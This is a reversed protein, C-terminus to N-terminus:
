KNVDAQITLQAGYPQISEAWTRPDKTSRIIRYTEPDTLMEGLLKETKNGAALGITNGAASLARGVSTNVVGGPVGMPGLVSQVLNQGALHQATKSGGIAGLENARNYRGMDKAINTMDEIQHPYFVDEMKAGPMNLAKQVTEDGERLANAYAEMRMRTPNPSQDNLAPVAKKYFAEGAEMRNIPASLDSYLQNAARYSPSIDGMVGMAENKLGLLIRAQNTNGERMASGIMDDLGTKANMLQNMGVRGGTMTTEEPISKYNMLAPDYEVRAPTTTVKLPTSVAKGEDKAMRAGRNMAEKFSPRELLGELTVVQEPTANLGEKVARDYYPQTNSARAQELAERREKSGAINRLQDTYAKARRQSSAEIAAAVDPSVTQASRQLNALGTDQTIEALTPTSGRVLIPPNAMAKDAAAADTAFRDVARNLIRRRGTEYLPEIAGKIGKYGAAGVRSLGEGLAGAFAGELAGGTMDTPKTVAGIPVGSLTTAVYPNATQAVGQMTKPLRTALKAGGQALKTQLGLGPALTLGITGLVNGTTGATTNMLPQERKEDALAEAQTYDGLGFTNGARRVSRIVDNSAKGVGAQFLEGTSMGKTPDLEKRTTDMDIAQMFKEVSLDPYHKKRLNALLTEDPIGEYM